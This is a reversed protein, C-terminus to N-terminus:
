KGKSVGLEAESEEALKKQEDDHYFIATEYQSGRDAFQGGDDTPDIQTWFVALLDKYSVKTPDYTIQVAEVHGTTGGSVENYTPDEKHGGTYGPIVSVVGDLNEFPPEMCWFCGGAFTAKRLRPDNEM